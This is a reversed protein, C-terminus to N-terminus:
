AYGEVVRRAIVYGLVGLAIGMIVVKADERPPDEGLSKKQLAIRRQALKNDSASTVRPPRPGEVGIKRAADGLGRVTKVVVKEAAAARASDPGYVYLEPAKIPRMSIAQEAPIGPRARHTLLPAAGYGAVLIGRFRTASNSLVQYSAQTDDHDRVLGWVVCVPVPVPKPDDQRYLVQSKLFRYPTGDFLGKATTLDVPRNFLFGILSVPHGGAESQVKALIGPSVPALLFDQGEENDEFRFEGTQNAWVTYRVTAPAFQALIRAAEQTSESSGLGSIPSLVKDEFYSGLM